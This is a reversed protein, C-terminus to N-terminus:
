RALGEEAILLELATDVGAVIGPTGAQAAPVLGRQMQLAGFDPRLGTVKRKSQRIFVGSVSARTKIPGVQAYRSLRRNADAAIPESAARIGALAARGAGDGVANLARTVQTLGEVRITFEGSRAM